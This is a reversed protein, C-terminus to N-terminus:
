TQVGPWDNAPEEVSAPDETPDPDMQYALKMNGLERLMIEINQYLGQTHAVDPETWRTVFSFVAICSSAGCFGLDRLDSPVRPLIEAWRQRPNRVVHPNAKM